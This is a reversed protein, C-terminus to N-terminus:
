IQKSWKLGKVVAIASHQTHSACRSHRLGWRPFTNFPRSRLAMKQPTFQPWTSKQHTAIPSRPWQIVFPDPPGNSSTLGPRNAACLTPSVTQNIYTQSHSSDTVNLHGKRVGTLAYKFGRHVVGLLPCVTSSESAGVLPLPTHRQSLPVGGALVSTCLRGPPGLVANRHCVGFYVRQVDFIQVM